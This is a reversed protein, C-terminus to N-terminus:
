LYKKAVTWIHDDDIDSKILYENVNYAHCKQISEKDSLNSSVVVPFTMKKKKRYQLVSFGDTEPMLLDLILLDPADEVIIDIAEQGNQATSIRINHKTLATRMMCLLLVEDEAILIHKAISKM